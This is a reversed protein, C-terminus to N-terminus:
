PWFPNAWLSSPLLPPTFPFEKFEFLKIKIKRRSIISNGNVGGKVGLLKHALKNQGDVAPCLM